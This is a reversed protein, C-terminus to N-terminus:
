KLVKVFNPENVRHCRVLRGAAYTELEPVETQCKDITFKAFNTTAFNGHDELIWHSREIRHVCDTMLDGFHDTHM